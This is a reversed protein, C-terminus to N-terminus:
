RIGQVFASQQSPVSSRRMAPLQNQAELLDAHRWESTAIFLLYEEMRQAIPGGGFMALAAGTLLLAYLLLGRFYRRLLM